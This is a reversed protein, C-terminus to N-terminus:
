KTSSFGFNDFSEEADKIKKMINQSLITEVPAQGTIEADFNNTGSEDITPIFEAKISRSLLAERDVDKFFDHAM